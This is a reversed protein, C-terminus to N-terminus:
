EPKLAAALQQRKLACWCRERCICIGMRTIAAVTEAGWDRMSFMCAPRGEGVCCPALMQKQENETFQALGLGLKALRRAIETYGLGVALEFLYRGYPRLAEETVDATELLQWFEGLSIGCGIRGILDNVPLIEPNHAVRRLVRKADAEMAPHAAIARQCIAARLQAMDVDCFGRIACLFNHHGGELAAAFEARADAGDALELEFLLRALEGDDRANAIALAGAARADDLGLGFGRRADCLLRVFETNGNECAIRLVSNGGARVQDPTLGLARLRVLMWLSNDVASLELLFTALEGLAALSVDDRVLLNDVFARCIRMDSMPERVFAELEATSCQEAVSRVRYVHPPWGESM